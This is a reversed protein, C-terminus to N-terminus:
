PLLLETHIRLNHQTNTITNITTNTLFLTIATLLSNNLLINGILCRILIGHDILIGGDIFTDSDIRCRGGACSEDGILCRGHIGSWGIRIGDGGSWDIGSWGIRIWDVGSWDVGSWGVGVGHIEIGVGDGGSGVVREIAAIAECGCRRRRRGERREEVCVTKGGGEEGDDVLHGIEVGIRDEDLTSESVVQWAGAPCSAVKPPFDERLLKGGLWM